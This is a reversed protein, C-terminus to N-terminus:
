NVFSLENAVGNLYDIINRDNYNNQIKLQFQVIKRQLKTRKRICM